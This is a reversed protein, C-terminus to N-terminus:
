TYRHAATDINRNERHTNTKRGVIERNTQRTQGDIHIQTDTDHTQMNHIQTYIHNDTPTDIHTNRGTNRHTQCEKCTNTVGDTHM